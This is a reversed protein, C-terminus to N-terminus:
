ILRMTALFAEITLSTVAELCFPTPPRVFMHVLIASKSYLNGLRMLYKDLM